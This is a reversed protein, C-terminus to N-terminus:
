SRLDENKLRLVGGIANGEWASGVAPVGTLDPMVAGVAGPQGSGPVLEAPNEEPGAGGRTRPGATERAGPRRAM